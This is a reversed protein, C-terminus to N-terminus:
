FQNTMETADAPERRIWYSAADSDWGLNLLDKGMWRILVAMPTFVLYFLLATVIPNVVKGLLIGLRTWALNAPRLISPRLLCTILFLVSIGIWWPRIPRGRLLPGFGLLFSIAAFVAGFNRDSPGQRVGERQFDEHHRTTM